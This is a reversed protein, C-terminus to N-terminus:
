QSSPREGSQRGIQGGRLHLLSEVTAVPRSHDPPAVLKTPIVDVQVRTHQRNPQGLESLRPENWQVRRGALREAVIGVPAIGM